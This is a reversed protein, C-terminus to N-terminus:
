TMPLARGREGRDDGALEDAVLPKLQLVQRRAEECAPDIALAQRYAAEARALWRDVLYSRAAACYGQEPAGDFLDGLLGTLSEGWLQLVVTENEILYRLLIANHAQEPMMLRLLYTARGFMVGLNEMQRRIERVTRRMFRECEMGCILLEGGKKRPGGAMKEALPRYFQYIYANEKLKMAEHFLSGMMWDVLCGNMEERPDVERWLRHCSDKLRWLDGKSGESGVLRDIDEFAVLGNETYRGYVAQFRSATEHFEKLLERVWLSRKEARWQNRNM